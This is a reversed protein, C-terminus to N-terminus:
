FSKPIVKSDQNLSAEYKDEPATSCTSPSTSPCPDATRDPRRVITESKLRTVLFIPDDPLLPSYVYKAESMAYWRSLNRRSKIEQDIDPACVVM